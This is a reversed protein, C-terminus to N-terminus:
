IIYLKTSNYTLIENAIYIINHSFTKKSKGTSQIQTKIDIIETNHANHM